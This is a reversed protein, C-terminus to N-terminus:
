ALGATTLSQMLIATSNKPSKRATDVVIHEASWQHYERAQVQKWTPLILGKIDTDRNLIRREHELKDSCIIEINVACSHHEAAVADWENRTLAIPNCSDAIVSKGIRLNDGAIRYALRYGEGEVDISCLDRLGQEITDIRLYAANTEQCLM